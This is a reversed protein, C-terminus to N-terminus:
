VTRTSFLCAPAAIVYDSGSSNNVCISRPYCDSTGDALLIFPATDPLRYRPADAYFDQRPGALERMLLSCDVAYGGDYYARATLVVNSPIPPPPADYPPFVIVQDLAYAAIYDRASGGGYDYCIVLVEREASCGTPLVYGLQNALQIPTMVVGILLAHVARRVSLEFDATGPASVYIRRVRLGGWEGDDSDDSDSDSDSAPVIPRALLPDAGFLAIRRKTYEWLIALVPFVQDCQMTHYLYYLALGAIAIGGLVLLLTGM